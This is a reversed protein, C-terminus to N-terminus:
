AHRDRRAVLAALRDARDRRREAGRNTSNSPADHDIFVDPLVMPRVQAPISGRGLRWPQLVFASFGGDFRGRDYDAVRPGAGPSRDFRHRAAQRLACRCPRRCVASVLEDAAEPNRCAHVLCLHSATAKAFSRGESRSRTGREPMAVCFGRRRIAYPWPPRRNRATRMHKLEAESSAGHHRFRAPLRSLGTSRGPMPRATPGVSRRTSPSAVPVGPNRCRACRTTPASCSLDFLDHFPKM